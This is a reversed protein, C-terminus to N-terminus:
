RNSFRHITAPKPRKLPRQFPARLSKRPVRSEDIEVDNGFGVMPLGSKSILPMPIKM